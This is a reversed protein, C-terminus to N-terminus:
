CIELSNNTHLTLDLNANSPYTLTDLQCNVINMKM